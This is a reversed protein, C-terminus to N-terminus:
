KGLGTLLFFFMVIFGIVGLLIIGLGTVKVMLKYEESDPKKSVTFIRRAAALFGSIKGKWGEQVVEENDM